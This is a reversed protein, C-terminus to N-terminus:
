PLRILHVARVDMLAARKLNKPSIRLQYEGAESLNVEGLHRWIFNQFHGTEQVEFELSAASDNPSSALSLKLEATSGGNGSGCGQLIAVNFKGPKEVKM